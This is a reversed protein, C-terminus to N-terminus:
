ATILAKCADICERCAEGCVKCPEHDAAHKECEKACDDCVTICVEAFEKLRKADLAAYRALVTCMPLMEIVSVMCDKLSTDGKGMDEICHALCVDGVGVCKLGVDILAQHRAHHDHSGTAAKAGTALPLLLGAMAAGALVDRRSTETKRSKAAKNSM